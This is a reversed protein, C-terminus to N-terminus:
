KEVTATPIHVKKREQLKGEKIMKQIKQLRKLRQVAAKKRMNRSLPRIRYQKEKAINIVASSRVLFSFRKLVSGSNESAKRKVFVNVAM